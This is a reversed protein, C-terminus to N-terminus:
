GAEGSVVSDNAERWANYADTRAREVEKAAEQAFQDIVAPIGRKIYAADLTVSDAVFQVPPWTM